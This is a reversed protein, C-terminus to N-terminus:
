PKEIISKYKKFKTLDKDSFKASVTNQPIKSNKLFFTFNTFQNIDEIKLLNNDVSILNTAQLNLLIKKVLTEKIGLDESIEKTAKHFSLVSNKEKLERYILRLQRLIFANCNSTLHPNVKANSKKLRETITLITKEMYPPLKRLNGEFIEKTLITVETEEIAKVSASRPENNLLSMEGVIDGDGIIALSVPTGNRDQLVELKGRLIAYAEEAYDGEQMLFQGPTFLRKDTSIWKGAILDDIDMALESVTQYRNDKNLAMAKEIIRCVEKPIQRSPARVDPPILDRKTAMIIVDMISEALYPPELTFMHYLTAGLLFIDSRFDLEEPNGRAQEPSIFAPSGRVIGKKDTSLQKMAEIIKPTLHHEEFKDESGIFKALGWDMLLVEGYEGVMINHPKIDRHIIGKSHAYSTADCVKRFIGLMKYFNYKSLYIPNHYELETMIDILAEGKVLKMTFFLGMQDTLGIDHVPIINPHELAGTIKAEAIFNQLTDFDKKYKPLIVKLASIRQLDQDLTKFITGMGGSIIKDLLQYKENNLKRNISNSYCAKEKRTAKYPKTESNNSAPLPKLGKLKHFLSSLVDANSPQIKHKNTDIILTEVARFTEQVSKTVSEKKSFKPM